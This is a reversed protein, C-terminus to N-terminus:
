FFIEFVLQLNTLHDARKHYHSALDDIYAEVIHKLDNFAFTM